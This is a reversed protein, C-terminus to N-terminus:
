VLDILSNREITIQNKIIEINKALPLYVLEGYENFSSVPTVEMVEIYELVYPTVGISMEFQNEAEMFLGDFENVNVGLDYDAVETTTVNSAFGVSLTSTLVVCMLIGLIRKM